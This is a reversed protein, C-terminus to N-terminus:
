ANLVEQALTRYAKAGPHSPDYELLPKGAVTSEPFRVSKRIPTFVRGPFRARLSDLVEQEHVTRNEYMTPLIGLLSLRQNTRRQIKQISDMLQELGRLALYQCEM